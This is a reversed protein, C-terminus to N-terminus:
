AVTWADPRSDIRHVFSDLDAISFTLSGRGESRINRRRVNGAQYRGNTASVTAHPLLPPEGLVLEDLEELADLEDLTDLEDLALGVGGCILTCGTSATMLTPWVAVNVTM